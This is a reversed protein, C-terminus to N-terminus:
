DPDSDFDPEMRRARVLACMWAFFKKEGRKPYVGCKNREILAANEKSCKVKGEVSTTPKEKKVGTEANIEFTITEEGVRLMLRREHIDLITRGTALFPRGFILAVEKNEEIKVMIFDVCFVFKDVQVLVYEVIGEPIIKTQYALQLSIPASRIEGIETELKKAYSSIQLLVEIFPLNVNVVDHEERRSTEEKKKKEVRKKGKKKKDVEIKLEKPSGKEHIVEIQVPTPEKLVQGSRLTLVNVTEKPNKVTDSPPTGPIRESLIIVIQGVQKEVNRLGTGLEEISAGHSKLRENTKVIFSKLYEGPSSWSLDPHKQGIPNFNYNGMDNVEEMSAQCEHTLHGRECIDCITYPGIHISALTLKRIEKAMADLHVQVSTNADVQHVGTSRRREAIEFPWQNADESLEDLITVIEEPGKKM